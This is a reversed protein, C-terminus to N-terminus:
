RMGNLRTPVKYTRQALAQVLVPFPVGGDRYLQIMKTIDGTGTM